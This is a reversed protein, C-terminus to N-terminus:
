RRNKRRFIEGLGLMGIISAVTVLEEINFIVEGNIGTNPLNKDNVVNIAVDKNELDSKTLNNGNVKEGNVTISYIKYGKPIDLQPSNENVIKSSIINGDKGIINIRVSPMKPTLTVTKYKTSGITTNVDINKDNYGNLSIKIHNTGVTTGVTVEGNDNTKEEKGNVIIIKNRLPGKDNNVTIVVKGAEPNLSIIGFAKGNPDLNVSTQGNTYGEDSATASISGPKVNSVQVEGNSNTHLTQGNINVTAGSLVKGTKSDVVKITVTGNDPTLSITGTEQGNPTVEVKTSGNQYNDDSGDVTVDGPKVNSITVEGKANTTYTKGDYTVKANELPKKTESDVVTIKMTGNDPTLTVNTKDIGGPKGDVIVTGNHYNESGITITNKGESTKVTVQGEGNTTEPTGNVTVKTNKLPGNEGNVAVVVKGAEPNLSITGTAKGNLDLKVSTQGNTYGEDSATASINGPKVNSVQVEGNSNTHLIQGNINVTAGSLVKGTKSDVVKITVTGNDPTLSITGTEQGNPTVEVKTSGSHYNDDSGDVTVDGPTVNSITVEGKGNTTYTKGDYTVKANELPKKTESDIVTIKMTGNDPTLTVNAKETGGPKGDVTVTGNHYNESGITITNKGESTKVTVQGEGNTTEPTGNVTVKTNKLPGNEGNVTVIVKGAEPNLSITGTVKGNPDLKVSTQGNNYGEDSATASINGPKVNSVQVEGNSNAHLTEGNINVTAGSLVKGTKSDVVKITVTGNNPTLSIIGTGQGNPAVEVKISGSHYNNDSGDVTVDGPTVNSITVEGKVNTTYTKGDYTVTANQLPKKTESDVVTIKMTGNDPTLTINTKGTEGPKGDVTVTGNHYNKSGITITNKGESTKVTVQGEGNTTEPTGNVTVKTNKLPGNEGNVTVVVKGAEPNLSITGTVKGNPDLKVSTQGNTYGKDSATAKVDGPKVNSVQVEGNSNTHLIQGNINVTAGSLVKGTKSDVVKITVTGNDPTLTVNAKETGDPKGDVTVTGNHYNKTGITITNKGESTKVTVQGEGNTTELTGNVIVKTNKLPGNEGNVTVVVKGAEPNLSITGTVKGNPDLKVSTQGNTYGEDSATAKVDGPKVNSVQVEGNSNTHLIQGNINVTAGSLVKGTKSDVVKITITGNDPTLSIVGTGQGNPTVEVKISGSYYNNDSGDVAVNGPTVNSITVEGKANTTYTKGDYTVKANELPKKTESDVVIIKMTGNDPTLTINTKGTEGPKGDVTVTGNHYDKTGITITNKGESTKVTVQGEGNTTEPTGNVTVKTNKLPGNEGNVTVVVKGAEPNLSITGTVKGNPDLKVSTQGNNYGEDSATAKVDGPKVNSIQVEGNSNTHLTQGNINVTAGSLVKGTKSDVVKITITGNDPTLSIVGTGQGNPTVEVKISGSYYNNDSGDVAVNGPTVNSITVEGKANTTYTKGDYTVKANELPKKTESDVVIIKMTGNDPTLTINTKGTEGPKGDVTVTGNHYDKTGITITNKGESTKVTVQGEGNTTEPTGNVTVKTNKLPGNEGNVTVVVKGAEPNLSITGTVKGNPDLKVSTQGNNYGEDSATAKVDGPKVNSIQVEGNSNTHLTQGNINVTAGSLVKGTKSDVVKITVTGNDPTLTVNAKETGGPKGDVTVTGDHYNESGIIITNKGESTKVTVQGEGNTTEPSGNVTVKTNKLPGNEGNVTVVVKGAEPNLSITGTVKGNPDLKVSTQGNTYGEDSATASISGPKVNRVQVEGDSNTHLTQGNINVTAGSLVKGTKSDVVKITVTGNDPTLSIIGTGQGNPAVEIKISGSHYNNDSGNVTVDGPTVNSITVEGKANTTYTKGDYTVKANELPKKTESDVVTIKMTGNDPTLTVNAKETGDPKGDVTVTGNHYNKTGITITNKGELTKVTVQGEGNTTEPTGNVIVKTNKLPGNEGNVTVVVKGAEPNLSITGTVKGNPDLKVSTQGNNYGEDSATASINGPKVNSVQVEGNSNTHLTQGNINVTAGSLVKGTKSDVVKITVTGNDPTLTVNAKETGGPKGDVTVTGDHYNESGIIITNKGESTKVTVQGEGNTTEPSGNVTVKTNKLPGNEGNVTVVVKGAEPNLSITGTVKGNPDLKVSTQGNTYGEDSATAKVDGPKVNSITVEGNRDTTYTKGDYTVKANELPKKTESDVVTIKMTGNDPTLTVNAKETGDPKGDVTVTGNHYNKTGITITNKGESTKVTVQGEGNTTEPTGNVTVKTNKLPGNEGNVTVIVKGAEPNLSITGTAKGNPDLNVSTQGNTYGEDSATASINGPKVNSVQVEGNSNTHLTQGNINVTAGSLVKGTKSDVVKITVTGNDPTLSIVGTGQGNPTVEVKTSGSHYNNDSGDVTVNGPTVNSITVEGKANTTYTQGNINVTAGSLAKGTKSDVVKITVTGNDPTLSIIGTGQGNPTVEVKTSGNHYNDDSGNVTVNGPTVNSITVEGKVNTTYTKGDYTVKANELPKKTESDVVTIKMTGNDPTLTVNAKETGGPKGDVTVTGNHYNESGIAITNKGESTKVTVEGEGNTTEPTGNVTVKTNKLPGNEGNVTVVIKGAEPNLSITGTVKGNPDLNVSTQGNTYGEDSATASINGPKVNSVQVEGNSNTHLTQGNINVTAGSLAKGTKSDVVKITVTGNDPTLSITGTGQGNPPVEVKTSGNQYNDDSGDVTIDGPTIGSITVEGKANTTYTKGNYTVKANGLPQKTVSDIVKIAANGYQKKKELHYIVTIKSNGISTPDLKGSIVKGNEEVTVSKVEYGKPIDAKQISTGVEGTFTDKKIVKEDSNVFIRNVTGLNIIIDGKGIVFYPLITTQISKLSPITYEENDGSIPGMGPLSKVVKGDKCLNIYSYSNDRKIFVDGNSNATVTQNQAAPYSNITYTEGPKLGSVKTVEYNLMGIMKNKIVIPEKCGQVKIIINKRGLTTQGESLQSVPVVGNSLIGGGIFNGSNDTVTITKGSVPVGNLNFKINQLDTYAKGNGAMVITDSDNIANSNEENNSGVLLKENNVKLEKNQSNNNNENLEMHVNTGVAMAATTAVVLALIKKNFPM